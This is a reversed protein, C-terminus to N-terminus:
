QAILKNADVDYGCEKLEKVLDLKWKGAKDFDTYVVGKFDSLIELDQENKLLPLVQKRELKGFFYGLEFIVNQRARFKQEAFPKDKEGGKDDPSLLVVAFSVGSNSIFKELLTLGQNPLESLIIPKLELKELVRAVSEKMAEDHGHVVFIEKSLQKEVVSRLALGEGHEISSYHSKVLVLANERAKDYDFNEKRGEKVLTFMAQEIGVTEAVERFYPKIADKVEALKRNAAMDQVEVVTETLRNDTLFFFYARSKTIACIVRYKDKWFPYKEYDDPLDIRTIEKYQEIFSNLYGEAEEKSVLLGNSFPIKRENGTMNIKERTEILGM